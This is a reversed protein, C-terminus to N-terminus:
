CSAKWPGRGMTIFSNSKWPGVMDTEAMHALALAAMIVALAHSSAPMTDSTIRSAVSTDPMGWCRRAKLSRPAHWGRAGAKSPQRGNWSPLRPNTPPSAATAM